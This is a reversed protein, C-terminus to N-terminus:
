WLIQKEISIKWLSTQMGFTKKLLGGGINSFTLDGIWCSSCWPSPVNIRSGASFPATVSCFTRESGSKEEVRKRKQAGRTTCFSCFPFFYFANAPAQFKQAGGGTREERWKFPPAAPNTRPSQVKSNAALKFWRVHCKESGYVLLFTTAAACERLSLSGERVWGCDSM